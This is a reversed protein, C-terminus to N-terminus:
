NPTPTYRNRRLQQIAPQWTRSLLFGDERNFNNPHLNLEIAERILRDMYGSKSALIKTEQFSIKHGNNISHEAVASKELHALRIHHRHEEVRKEVTCGSQGVYVKGYQCPICYVGPIKLGVHDKVPRLCNFIKKPPLNIGRIDHKGLM